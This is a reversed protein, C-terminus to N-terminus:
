DALNDEMKKRAFCVDQNEYKHELLVRGSQRLAEVLGSNIYLVGRKGFMWVHIETNFTQTPSCLNKQKVASVPARNM